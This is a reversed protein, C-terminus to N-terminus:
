EIKSDYGDLKIISKLGIKINLEMTRNDKWNLNGGGQALEQARGAVNGVRVSCHMALRWYQFHERGLCRLQLSTSLIRERVVGM